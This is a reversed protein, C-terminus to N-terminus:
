TTPAKDARGALAAMLRSETGSPFPTGVGTFVGSVELRGKLFGIEDITATVSAGSTTLNLVARYGFSGDGYPTVPLANFSVINLQSGAPASARAVEPLLSRFCGLAKPGILAALDRQALSVTKMVTVDSSVDNTTDSFDASPVDAEVSTSPDPAGACAELQQEEGATADTTDQAPGSTWGPLDAATLNIRNAVTTDIASGTTGAPTSSTSSGPSTSPTSDATAGGETGVAAPAASPKSASIVAVVAIVAVAVLVAAGIM